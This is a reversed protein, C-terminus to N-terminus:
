DSEGPVDRGPPRKGNNEWDHSEDRLREIGFKLRWDLRNRSRYGPEAVLPLPLYSILDSQYHFILIYRMIFLYMLLSLLNCLM